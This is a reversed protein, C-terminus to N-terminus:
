AEAQGSLVSDLFIERETQCLFVRGGEMERLYALLAAREAESLDEILAAIQKLTVDTM